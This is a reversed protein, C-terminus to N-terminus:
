CCCISDKEPRHATPQREHSSSQGAGQLWRQQQQQQQQQWALQHLQQAVQPTSHLVGGVAAHELLQLLDQGYCVLV